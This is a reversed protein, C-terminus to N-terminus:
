RSSPRGAAPPSARRPLEGFRPRQSPRSPSGLLPGPSPCPSCRGTAPDCFYANPASDVLKTPRNAGRPSGRLPHLRVTVAVALKPVLRPARRPQLRRRPNRSVRRRDYFGLGAWKEEPGTGGCTRLASRREGWLAVRELLGHTFRVKWGFWRFRLLFCPNRRRIRVRAPRLTSFVRRRRPRARSEAQDPANAAMASEPIEGPYRSPSVAREARAQEPAVRILWRAHRERHRTRDSAGDLAIAQAAPEAGRDTLELGLELGAARVQEACPRRRHAGRGGLQAVRQAGDQTGSTLTRSSPV